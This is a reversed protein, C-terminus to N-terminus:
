QSPNTQFPNTDTYQAIRARPETVRVVIRVRRKQPRELVKAFAQTPQVKVVKPKFNPVSYAPVPAELIRPPAKFPAPMGSVQSTRIPSPGTKLNADILFLFGVLSAGIVLFYSIIPV